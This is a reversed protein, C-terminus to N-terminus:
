GISFHVLGSLNMGWDFDFEALSHAAGNLKSPIFPIKIKKFSCSFNLIDDVLNKNMWM